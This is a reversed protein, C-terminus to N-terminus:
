RGDEREAGFAGVIGNREFVGGAEGHGAGYFRGEISGTADSSRFAGRAVPIDDWRMDPRVAGGSDTMGTFAIDAEPSGFDGIRLEASGEVRQGSARELGVVQGKWVGGGIGAPNTAPFAGFSVAVAGDALGFVSEDLWHGYFGSRDGRLMRDALAGADLDGSAAWAFTDEGGLRAGRRWDWPAVHAGAHIGRGNARAEEEEDAYDEAYQRYALAWGNAVLWANLDEGGSSCVGISRGYRDTGSGACSLGAARSMLAETAAAGCDWTRGWARCTQRIEPADIGFLRWRTGDIDVTDADVVRVDATPAPPPATNPMPGSASSPGGGGGGCASLVLVSAAAMVFAKAPLQGPLTRETRRRHMGRATM